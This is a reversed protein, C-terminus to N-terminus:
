PNHLAPLQYIELTTAGAALRNFYVLEAEDRRRSEAIVGAARSAEIVVVGDADGVVLDGQRVPVDGFSIPQGFAGDGAPDKGTGVICINAAFTPFGMEVLQRSDRVGGSMVLGAIGAHQAARAMGEGWYGYEAAASCDVVLVDGPKAAYIGHHLFLNDGAPSRIPFARGFLTMAPSLPKIASPLAGTRGAAEHITATSLGRAAAVLGDMM